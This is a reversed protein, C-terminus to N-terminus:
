GRLRLPSELEEDGDFAVRDSRDLAVLDPRMPAPPNKPSIASMSPPSRTAVTVAVVSMRRRTSPRWSNLSISSIAIGATVGFNSATTPVRMRVISTVGSILASAEALSAPDHAVGVWFAPLATLEAFPGADAGRM